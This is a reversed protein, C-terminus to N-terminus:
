MFQWTKELAIGAVYTKLFLKSRSKAKTYSRSINMEETFLNVTKNIWLYLISKKTESIFKSSLPCHVHIVFYDFVYMVPQMCAMLNTNWFEQYIFYDRLYIASILLKLEHYLNKILKWMVCNFTGFLLM